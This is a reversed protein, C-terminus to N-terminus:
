AATGRSQREAAIVQAAHLAHPPQLYTFHDGAVDVVRLDGLCLGRWYATMDDPLSPWLPTEGRHRLLTLDGVYPAVEHLTAATLSHRFMQYLATVASAGTDSGPLAVAQGIDALRSAQPQHGLRRFCCAVEELAPDGGLAAFAGDPVRDPTDALIAALARGIAAEPPFGLGALVFHMERAFLYEVL